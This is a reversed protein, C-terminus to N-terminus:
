PGSTDLAAQNRATLSKLPLDDETTRIVCVIASHPIYLSAFRKQVDSTTGFSRLEVLFYNNGAAVNSCIWYPHEGLQGDAKHAIKEFLSGMLSNADLVLLFLTENGM